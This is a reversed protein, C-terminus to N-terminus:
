GNFGVCIASTDAQLMPRGPKRSAMSFLVRLCLPRSRVRVNIPDRGAASIADSLAAITEKKPGFKPIVVSSILTVAVYVSEATPKTISHLCSRGLFLYRQNTNERKVVQEDIGNTVIFQNALSKYVEDWSPYM